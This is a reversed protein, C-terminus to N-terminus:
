PKPQRIWQPTSTVSDLVLFCCVRQTAGITAHTPARFFHDQHLTHVREARSILECATCTSVDDSTPRPQNAVRRRWAPSRTNTSIGMTDFSRVSSACFTKSVGASRSPRCAGAPKGIRLLLGGVQECCAHDLAIACAPLM